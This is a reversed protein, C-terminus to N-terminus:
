RGNNNCNKLMQEIQNFLKANLEELHEKKPHQVKEVAWPKAIQMYIKGFRPIISGTPLVKRSGKIVVPVVPIGTKSALYAWGHQFPCLGDCKSIKGEPFIILTKGERLIRIAAKIAAIEGAENQVPIAGISRLFLGVIPLKFLYAASLSTVRQPWFAALLLGDILSEHNAVIIMPGTLPINEKGVIIPSGLLCLFYKFFYKILTYVMMGRGMEIM